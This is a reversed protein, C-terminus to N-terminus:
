LARVLATAAAACIVCGVVSGTRWYVLAALGVGITKEGAASQDGDALVSVVVLASLLAPALLALVQRVREPLERGGLAVPGAAKILFTAVARLGRPPVPV